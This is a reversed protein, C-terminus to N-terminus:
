INALEVKKIAKVIEQYGKIAHKYDICPIEANGIEINYVETDDSLKECVLRINGNFYDDVYQKRNM